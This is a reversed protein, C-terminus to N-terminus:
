GYQLKLLQIRASEVRSEVPTLRCRGVEDKGGDIGSLLFVMGSFISTPKRRKATRGAASPAAAAAAAATAAAASAAPTSAQATRGRKNGAGPTAPLATTKRRKGSSTPTAYSLKKSVTEADEDEDEGEDEDEEEFM